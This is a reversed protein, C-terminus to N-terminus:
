GSDSGHLRNPNLNSEGSPVDKQKADTLEKELKEIRAFLAELIPLSWADMSIDWPIRTDLKTALAEAIKQERFTMPM